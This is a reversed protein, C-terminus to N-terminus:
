VRRARVRRVFQYLIMMGILGFALATGADEGGSGRVARNLYRAGAV